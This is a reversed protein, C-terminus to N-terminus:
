IHILSLPKYVEDDKPKILKYILPASIALVFIVSAIITAIRINKEYIHRLYYAGYAKNRNEFIIDDLSQAVISM